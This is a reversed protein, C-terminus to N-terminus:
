SALPVEVYEVLTKPRPVPDGEERLCRIHFAIASQIQKRVDAETKAFAACVPLDPVYAGFGGKGREIIVAYRPNKM